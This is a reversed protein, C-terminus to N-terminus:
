RCCPNIASLPMSALAFYYPAAANLFNEIRIDYRITQEARPLASHFVVEADLLRYMALGQTHADAGLWASLMLDAQGSEIAISTPIKGEDLYWADAFIDHETVLTGAELSFKEGTIAMMRHCLLLRDSPLRVRTPLDDVFSFEPGFM